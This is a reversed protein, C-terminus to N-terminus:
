MKGTNLEDRLSAALKKGVTRSISSHITKKIKRPTSAISMDDQLIHSYVELKFEFDAPVSNSSYSFCSVINTNKIQVYYNFPNGNKGFHVMQELQIKQIIVIGLTARFFLFNVLLPLSYFKYCYQFM